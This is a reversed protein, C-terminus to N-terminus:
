SKNHASWRLVDCTFAPWTGVNGCPEINELGAFSGQEGAASVGMSYRYVEAGKLRNGIVGLRVLSRAASIQGLNPFDADSRAM